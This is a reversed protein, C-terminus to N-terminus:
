FKNLTPVKPPTTSYPASLFTELCLLTEKPTLTPTGDPTLNFILYTSKM